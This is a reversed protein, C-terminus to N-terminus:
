QPLSLAQALVRQPQLRSSELCHVPQRDKPLHHPDPFPHSAPIDM